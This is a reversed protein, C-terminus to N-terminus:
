FHVILSSYVMHEHVDQSFDYEQVISSGVDKGFRYVYAFDLIFEGMAIGTGISLGYYDDPSEDSPSPDYFAGARMPIVTRWDSIIFLYEAGIRVQHTPKINSDSSPLGTIPSTKDGVSDKLIYDQWEKM